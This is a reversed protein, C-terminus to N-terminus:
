IEAGQIYSMRSAAPAANFEGHRKPVPLAFPSLRLLDLVFWGFSTSGPPHDQRIRGVKWGPSPGAGIFSFMNQPASTM